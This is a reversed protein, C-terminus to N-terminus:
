AQKPNAFQVPKGELLMKGEYDTLIGSLIKMLTSKGAGNEGVLAIITGREISFSIQHLVEVGAFSKSINQFDIM